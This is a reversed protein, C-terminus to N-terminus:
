AGLFLPRIHREFLNYTVNRAIPGACEELLARYRAGMEAAIKYGVHLLQRLDANFAPNSPEHRLAGTYQAATWARVQGPAPLKEARIRVVEAYPACLEERRAWAQAYVEKALELGAGGAEALGILEELWTTGATKLHLGAGSAELVRRIPAYISFKDSGSHVSLKLTPSLEYRGVAHRILAVHARFEREFRAADGEYDVGKHFEGCFRPAITEAPVHEDALAALIVLLEYPTQPRGTEDMSVETVFAGGKRQRIHRYIRGAEACAPLLGAAIEALQEATTEFAEELGEIAVTGSLEPHRAAFGQAEEESARLKLSNAVDLTFFDSWELFEDVTRLGIHDADVFYPRRWGTEAVAERAEDWTGQPRSGVITHERHSKNWVPTIEVGQAAAQVFAKLQAAGQRAFRDGVGLSFRALGGRNGAGAGSEVSVLRM